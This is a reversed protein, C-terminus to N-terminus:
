YDDTDSGFGNGDLNHFYTIMIINEFKNVLYWTFIQKEFNDEGFPVEGATDYYYEFMDIINFNLEKAFHQFLEKNLIYNDVWNDIALRIGDMLECFSPKLMPIPNTLYNIWQEIYMCLPANQGAEIIYEYNGSKTELGVYGKGYLRPRICYWCVFEILKENDKGWHLNNKKDFNLLNDKLQRDMILDKIQKMDINKEKHKEFLIEDIKEQLDGNLKKYINM